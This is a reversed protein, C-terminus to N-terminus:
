KNWRLLHIVRMAHIHLELDAVQAKQGGNGRGAAYGFGALAKVQGLGCEAM